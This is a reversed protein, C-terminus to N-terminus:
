DVADERRSSQAILAMLTARTHAVHEAGVDQLLRADVREVAARSVAALARGRDTLTVTLRRRDETDISRELYGRLVLTDILQGGAQKSVGLWEIILSLPAETDRIAGIVYIGNRPVDDFGAAAMAARITSGYAIRAARLLAPM